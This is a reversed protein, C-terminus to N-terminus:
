EKSKICSARRWYESCTVEPKGEEQTCVSEKSVRWMECPASTSRYTAIAFPLAVLAGVPLATALPNSNRVFAPLRKHGVALCLAIFVLSAGATVVVFTISALILANGNM